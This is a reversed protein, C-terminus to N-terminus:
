REEEERPTSGVAARELEGDMRALTEKLSDIRSGQAELESRLATWAEREPAQGSWRVWAWGISALALLGSLVLFVRFPRSTKVGLRGARARPEGARARGDGM